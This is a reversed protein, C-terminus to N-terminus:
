HIELDEVAAKALLARLSTYGFVPSFTEYFDTGPVQTFGKAVLRARHRQVTDDSNYKVKFVWKSKVLRGHKVAESKPVREFCNFRILNSIEEDMAARWEKAYKSSLAEKVTSPEPLLIRSACAHAFEVISQNGIASKRMQQRSHTMSEVLDVGVAGFQQRITDEYSHTGSVRLGAMAANFDLDDDCLDDVDQLEEMRQDVIRNTSKGAILEGVTMDSSDNFIIYGRTFDNIIDGNTGGFRILERLTVAQKYLEYRDRSKSRPAKPNLQQLRLPWDYKQALVLFQKDSSSIQQIAGIGISENRIPILDRVMKSSDITGGTGNVPNRRNSPSTTTSSRLRRGSVSGAEDVEDEDSKDDSGTISDGDRDVPTAVQHHEAAGQDLIKSLINTGM